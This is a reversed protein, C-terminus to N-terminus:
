SYTQQFFLQETLQRLDAAPLSDASKIGVILIRMRRMAAASKTGSMAVAARAPQPEDDAAEGGGLGFEDTV